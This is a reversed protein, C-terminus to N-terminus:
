HNKVLSQPSTIINMQRAEDSVENKNAREQQISFRTTGTINFDFPVSTELLFKEPFFLVKLPTGRFRGM